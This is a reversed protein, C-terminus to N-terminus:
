VLAAKREMVSPVSPDSFSSSLLARDVLVILRAHVFTIYVMENLWRWFFFM